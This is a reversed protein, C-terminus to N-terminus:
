DVSAVTVPVAPLPFGLLQTLHARSAPLPPREPQRHVIPRPRPFRGHLKCDAHGGRELHVARASHRAEPSTSTTATVYRARSRYSWSTGCVSPLAFLVRRTNPTRSVVFFRYSNLGCLVPPGGGAGAAVSPVSAPSRCVFAFVSLSFVRLFTLM